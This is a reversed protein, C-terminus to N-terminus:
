AGSFGYGFANGVPYLAVCPVGSFLYALSMVGNLASMHCLNLHSVCYAICDDVRAGGLNWPLGAKVSQYTEKICKIKADAKDVFDKMGGADILVGPFQMRLKLFSRHPNYIVTM